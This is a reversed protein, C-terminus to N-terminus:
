KVTTDADPNTAIVNTKRDYLPLHRYYIELIMTALCTMYLRGGAEGYQDAVNWSGAGHGSKRQTKVLMERMQDNWKDWEKGGWHHLVQTAYYNHYMNDPEPGRKSLFSIGKRLAQNDHDWGSYMRCLLGIATTSAKSGPEDYGYYTGSQTQVSDLFKSVLTMTRKPVSIGAARASELAMVQWGLVSTDGGHQGPLYKWGGQSNQSNVIFDIAQQTAGHLKKTDNMLNKRTKKGIKRADGMRLVLRQNMALAESLCITALGQVYMGKQNEIGARLDLGAPTQRAHALLFNIAAEINKQYDGEAYTNGSGMFTILAMATAGIREQALAGFQDCSRDCNKCRHDFCWSGDRWQHQALWHLGAGVAAESEETGGYRVLLASKGAQSRGAVEGKLPAISAPASPAPESVDQMSPAFDNEDIVFEENTEVVLDTQVETPPLKAMDPLELDVEELVPAVKQEDMSSTIFINPNEPGPVVILAPLFLLLLHLGTNVTLVKWTGQQTPGSSRAEGDAVIGVNKKPKFSREDRSEDTFSADEIPDLQDASGDSFADFEGDGFDMQEESSDDSSDDENQYDVSDTSEGSRGEGYEDAQYVQDWYDDPSFVEKPVRDSERALARSLPRKTGDFESSFDLGNNSRGSVHADQGAIDRQTMSSRNFAVPAVSSRGQRSDGNRGLPVPRERNSTHSRSDPEPRVPRGVDRATNRGRSQSAPRQEQQRSSEQIRNATPRDTQRIDRGYNMNRAARDRDQTRSRSQTKSRPDDVPDTNLGANALADMAFTGVTVETTNGTSESNAQTTREVTADTMGKSIRGEWYYFDDDTLGHTRELHLEAMKGITPLFADVLLRGNARYRFTVEVPTRAPLNRPLGTVVCKGIATANNGSADGGEIIDVKVSKQGDRFTKFRSISKCPLPTNRPIMLRRRNRGTATEVGLVGLDHSNVNSVQIHSLRDTQNGALLAAYIAAGHLVSEDPTLSRDPKIGSAEELANEVAPMRSAGGVLLIQTVDDWTKGAERLVKRVTMVTRDLLDSTMDEFQNRSLSTRLREGEHRYAINVTHRSTLARKADEAEHMLSQLAAEDDRPDNGYENIYERSIYDAIRATWDVGGLYVDGATGLAKLEKGAMQMLTVDFTGGGLDYVLVTESSKQSADLSMFGKYYGYAIAAATPENLIDLIKVGALQAADETAKRRPEDFYAPVTIVARHFEGLVDEADAKLKKLILAQIVEPPLLEGRISSQITSRGMDRKAYRVVRDAEIEAIKEAEKGVVVEDCDFFVASPTTYDGEANVLTAPRGTGDIWAVLSCTTGLDIGVVTERQITM